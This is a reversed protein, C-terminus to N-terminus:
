IKSNTKFKEYTAKEKKNAKRVSIVRVKKRRLTLVAFLIDGTSTAGLAFYRKESGSHKEDLFIILNPDFFVQEAEECSINHKRENKFRNGKDWQFEVEKEFVEPLYEM